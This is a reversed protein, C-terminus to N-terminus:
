DRLLDLEADWPAVQAAVQQKGWIGDQRGVQAAVMKPVLMLDSLYEMTLAAHSDMEAVAIAVMQLEVYGVMLAGKWNDTMEVWQFVLLGEM